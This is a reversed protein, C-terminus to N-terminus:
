INYLVIILTDTFNYNYKTHEGDVRVVERRSQHLLYLAENLLFYYYNGTFM